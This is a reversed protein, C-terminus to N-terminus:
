SGERAGEATLLLEASTPGGGLEVAWGEHMLEAARESSVHVRWGPVVLITRV